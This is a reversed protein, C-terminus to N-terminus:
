PTKEALARVAARAVSRQVLGVATDGPSRESHQRATDRQLCVRASQVVATIDSWDAHEVAQTNCTAALRAALAADPRASNLSAQSWPAWGLLLVCIMLTNGNMRVAEAM